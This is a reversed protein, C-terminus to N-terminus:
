GISTVEVREVVHGQMRVVSKLLDVQYLAWFEELQKLVKLRIAHDVQSRFAVNIARDIGRSLENLGIDYSGIM